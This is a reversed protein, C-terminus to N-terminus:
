VNSESRPELHRALVKENRCQHGSWWQERGGGVLLWLQQMVGIVGSKRPLPPPGHKGAGRCGPYLRWQELLMVRPSQPSPSNSVSHCWRLDQYRIAM